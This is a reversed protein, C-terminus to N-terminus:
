AFEPLSSNYYPTNEQKPKQKLCIIDNSFNKFEPLSDEFKKEM